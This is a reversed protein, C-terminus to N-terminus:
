CNEAFDRFTSTTKENALKELNTEVTKYTYAHYTEENKEFRKFSYAEMYRDFPTIQFAFGLMCDDDYQVDL